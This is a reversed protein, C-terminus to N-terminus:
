IGQSVNMCYLISVCIIDSWIGATPPLLLYSSFIVLFTSLSGMVIIAVNMKTKELHIWRAILIAYISFIFFPNLRDPLLIHPTLAMGMLISTFLILFTLQFDEVTSLWTLLIFLLCYNIINSLCPENLHTYITTFIITLVSFLAVKLVLHTELCNTSSPSPSPKTLERPTPPPTVTNKERPTGTVRLKKGQLCVDFSNRIVLRRSQKYLNIIYAATQFLNNICLLCGVRM